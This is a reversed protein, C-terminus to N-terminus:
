RPAATSERVILEPRMFAASEPADAGRISALLADFVFTGQREFDIRVTTLAPLFYAAEQIDDFGTVSMRDPVSIGRQALAHIAGLAMQDNAAVIATM